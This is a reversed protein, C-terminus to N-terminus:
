KNTTGLPFQFVFAADDINAAPLVLTFRSIIGKTKLRKISYEILNAHLLSNATGAWGQFDGTESIFCYRIGRKNIGVCLNKWLKKFTYGAPAKTMKLMLDHHSLMFDRNMKPSFKTIDISIILSKGGNRPSTMSVMDSITKDNYKEARRVYVTPRDTCIAVAAHDLESMLERFDAPASFMERTCTEDKTNEAKASVDIYVPWISRGAIVAQRAEHATVRGGLKDGNRIVSLLENGAVVSDRGTPLPASFRNVGPVICTFDGPNPHEMDARPMFPYHGRLEVKGWIEKPAVITGKTRASEMFASVPEAFEPNIWVNPKDGSRFCARAVSVTKVFDEFEKRVLPDVPNEKSMNKEVATILKYPCADPAPLSYYVNSVDLLGMAPVDLSKFIQLWDHPGDRKEEYEEQLMKDRSAAGTDFWNADPSM